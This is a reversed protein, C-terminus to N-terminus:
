YMYNLPNINKGNVIVEYHLHPGTSLGTNGMLAIPQGKKVKDGKKVLLTNNHGYRTVIGFGHDIVITRGLNGNWGAFVIKGDAPAWILSNKSNAIDIGKHFERRKVLPSIRYGFGSSIRGKCPIISPTAFSKEKEYVLYNKINREESQLEWSQATFNALSFELEKVLDATTILQETFIDPNIGEQNVLKFMKDKTKLGLLIQLEEKIQQTENLQRQNHNIQQAFHYFQQKLYKNNQKIEEYSVRETLVYIAGSISIVWFFCLFFIIGRSIKYHRFPKDPSHPIILISFKDRRKHLFNKKM